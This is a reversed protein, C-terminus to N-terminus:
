EDYIESKVIYIAHADGDIWAIIFVTERRQKSTRLLVYESNVLSEKFTQINTFESSGHRSYAYNALGAVEQIIEPYEDIQCMFASHNFLCKVQEVYGQNVRMKIVAIDDRGADLEYWEPQCGDRDIDIMFDRSLYRYCVEVSHLREHIHLVVLLIIVVCILICTTSRIIRM